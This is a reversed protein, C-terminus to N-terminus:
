SMTHELEAIDEDDLGEHANYSSNHVQAVYAAAEARVEEHDFPQGEEGKSAWCLDM